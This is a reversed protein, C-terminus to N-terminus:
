RSEKLMLNIAERVREPADTEKVRAIETPTEGHALWFAVVQWATYYAEGTIGAPGKGSTFRTVTESDSAGLVARVDQLVQSRHAAAEAFDPGPKEPHLSRDRHMAQGEAVVIEAISRPMPDAHAPGALAATVLIVLRWM